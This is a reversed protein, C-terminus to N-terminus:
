SALHLPYQWAAQSHAAAAKNAHDFHHWLHEMHYKADASDKNHYWVHVAAINKKKVEHKVM